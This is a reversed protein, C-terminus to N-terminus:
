KASSSTPPPTFADLAKGRYAKRNVRDERLRVDRKMVAHSGRSELSAAPRNSRTKQRSPASSRIMPDFVERTLFITFAGAPRSGAWM